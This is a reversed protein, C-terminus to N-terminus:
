LYLKRWTENIYMYYKQGIKKAEKTVCGNYLIKVEYMLFNSQTQFGDSIIDGILYENHTDDTLFHFSIIDGIQLKM